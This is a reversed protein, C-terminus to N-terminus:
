KLLRPLRLKAAQEHFGNEDLLDAAVQNNSDM